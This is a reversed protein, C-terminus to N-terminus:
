SGAHWIKPVPMIELRSGFKRHVIERHLRKVNRVVCHIGDTVGEMTVVAADAKEGIEAIGRRKRNLPHSIRVGQNQLTVM